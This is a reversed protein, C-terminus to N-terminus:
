VSELEVQKGTAIWAVKWKQEDWDMCRKLEMQRLSLLQETEDTGSM